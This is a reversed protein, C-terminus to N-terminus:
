DKAGGCSCIIPVCYESMGARQGGLNELFEKTWDLQLLEKLQAATLADKNMRLDMGTPWQVERLKKRKNWTERAPFYNNLMLEEQSRWDHPAKSSAYVGSGFISKEM